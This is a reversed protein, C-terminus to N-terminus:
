GALIPLGNLAVVVIATVLLVVVLLAGGALVNGVVRDGDLKRVELSAVQVLAVERAAAGGGEARAPAPGTTCGAIAPGSAREVWLPDTLEVASGDVLKLRVAQARALTQATWPQEATRWPRWAACGTLAGLLVLLLMLGPSVPSPARCAHLEPAPRLVRPLGRLTAVVDETGALSVPRGRLSSRAAFLGLDHEM